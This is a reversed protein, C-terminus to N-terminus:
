LSFKTFNSAKSPFNLRTASGDYTKTTDTESCNKANGIVNYIIRFDHPLDLLVIM